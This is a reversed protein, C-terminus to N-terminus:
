SLYCNIEYSHGSVKEQKYWQLCVLHNPVNGDKDAIQLHCSGIRGCFIGSWPTGDEQILHYGSFNLVVEIEDVPIYSSYRKSIQYLGKQIKTKDKALIKPVIKTHFLGSIIQTTFSM